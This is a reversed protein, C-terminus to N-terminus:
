ASAPPGRAVPRAAEVPRLDKGAGFRLAIGRTAPRAVPNALAAPVGSGAATCVPCHHAEVPNGTADLLISSVGSAGCVVMEVSGAMQGRAVAATVSTLSLMLVLFLQLVTRIM